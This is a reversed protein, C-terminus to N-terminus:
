VMKFTLDFIKNVCTDYDYDKDSLDCEKYITYESNICFSKDNGYFCVSNTPNISDDYNTFMTLCVYDPIDKDNYQKDYTLIGGSKLCKDKKNQLTSCVKSNLSCWKNCPRNGASIGCGIYTDDSSYVIHKGNNVIYSDIDNYSFRPADKLLYKLMSDKTFEIEPHESM